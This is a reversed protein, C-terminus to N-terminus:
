HTRVRIGTDFLVDTNLAQALVLFSNAGTARGAVLLRDGSCDALTTAASFGLFQSMPGSFCQTWGGGTVTSVAVNLQPGVPLYTAAAAPATALAAALVLSRFIM